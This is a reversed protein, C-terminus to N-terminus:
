PPRRSPLRGRRRRRASAAARLGRGRHGGARRRQDGLARAVEAVEPMVPLATADLELRVGSAEALRGRTSRSATPSTSCRAHAPRPGPRPGRRPAAAAAPPPRHAGSRRRRTGRAGGPRRRKRRPRRHRRRPRGAARRRPRRTPRGDRAWGVVTVSVTLAPGASWTAARSRSAASPPWRRPASTSPSSTRRRRANGPGRDLPVGRRARRGDRRPRLARRRARPLGVDEATWGAGLRFHTGDVM